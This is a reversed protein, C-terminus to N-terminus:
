KQGNQAATTTASKFSCPVISICKACVDTLSLDSYLSNNQMLQEYCKFRDFGDETLAGFRCKKVCALCNGGAKHECLEEEQVLSHDGLEAETVLSGLRGCCGSPTILQTHMGFRGLGALFAIHKHSWGSILREPKFNHTAPTVASKYGQDALRTSLYQNLNAILSNTDVYSQAWDRSAMEGRINSLVLDKRFPIFYVIVSKAGPLLEQPLLHDKAVIEKLIDFRDNLKATALLLGNWWNMCDGRAVFADIYAAAKQRIEEVNLRSNM